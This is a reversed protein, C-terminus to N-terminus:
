KTCAAKIEVKGKGLVEFVSGTKSYLQGKLIKMKCTTELKVKTPFVYSKIGLIFVTKGKSKEKEWKVVRGNSSILRFPQKQHTLVLKYSGSGSLHVYYQGNIERYGVVGSSKVIDPVGWTKPIRVTRCYGQNKILFVNKSERYVVTNRADLVIQAYESPFLPLVDQSLAYRYVKKLANLSAVKQCSYFHYYIGIPKLRRPKDTLKFTQIVRIFGWYPGHWWNTYYMENSIPAYVQYFNGFNVGSPAVNKLFPEEYNIITDGGNINYVGVKYTLEVDKGDPDCNGSWFLDKTRKKGDPSLYKNIFEM